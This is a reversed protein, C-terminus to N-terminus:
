KEIRVELGEFKPGDPRTLRTAVKVRDAGGAPLALTCASTTKYALVASGWGGRRSRWGCCSYQAVRAEGKFAEVDLMLCSGDSWRVVDAAVAVTHKPGPMTARVEVPVGVQAIPLRALVEAPHLIQWLVFAGVLTVGVGTALRWIWSRRTPLGARELARDTVVGDDLAALPEAEVALGSNGLAREFLPHLGPEVRARFLARGERIAQRPVRGSEIVSENYREIDAVLERALLTAEEPSSVPAM